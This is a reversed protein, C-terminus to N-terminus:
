SLEDSVWEFFTSNTDQSSIAVFCPTDYPHLITFRHKLAEIKSPLTKLIMIHEETREIAGQWHYMSLSKPFINACAILKEHLLQSCLEEAKEQSDITSYILFLDNM